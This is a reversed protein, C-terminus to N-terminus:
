RAVAQDLMTLGRRRLDAEREVPRGTGIFRRLDEAVRMSCTDGIPQAPQSVLRAVASCAGRVRALLDLVTDVRHSLQPRTDGRLGELMQTAFFDIQGERAFHEAVSVFITKSDEADIESATFFDLLYSMVDRAPVARRVPEFVPYNRAILTRAPSFGLLAATQILEAGRQRTKDDAAGAFMVVGRDMLAKVKRPDLPPADQRSGPPPKMLESLNKGITPELPAAMLPMSAFPATFFAAAVQSELLAKERLQPSPPSFASVASTSTTASPMVVPLNDARHFGWILAALVIAGAVIGTLRFAPLQRVSIGAIWPIARPRSSRANGRTQHAVWETV